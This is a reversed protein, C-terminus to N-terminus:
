LSDDEKLSYDIAEEDLDKQQYKRKSMDSKKYTTFLSTEVSLFSPQNKFRNARKVERIFIALRSNEVCKIYAEYSNGGHLLKILRKGINDPLMGIYQKQPNLVFIKLRKICLTVFEGTRLGAVTKSDAINILDIVKTKGTEELFINSLHRTNAQPMSSDSIVIHHNLISTESLRKLGRQAISNLNDITLVKQYTDKAERIKGIVSYAFALRNLTDIDFPNDKLLEQNLSIANNWDGVLATQIAQLKLLTM